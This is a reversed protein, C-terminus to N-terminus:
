GSYTIGIQCYRPLPNSSSCCANEVWWVKNKGDWPTNTGGGDYDTGAVLNNVQEETLDMGSPDGPYTGLDGLQESTGSLTDGIASYNFFSQNRNWNKRNTFIYDTYENSGYVDPNNNVCFYYTCNFSNTIGSLHGSISTSDLTVYYGCVSFDFDTEINSCINTYSLRMCYPNFHCLDGSISTCCAVLNRMGTFDLGSTDGSLDFNRAICLCSLGTAGSLFQTADESIGNEYIMFDTINNLNFDNLSACIPTSCASFRNLSSGVTLNNFSGTIGSINSVCLQTINCTDFTSSLNFTVGSNGSVDLSSITSPRVLDSLEGSLDNYCFYVQSANPPLTIGSLNGTFCSRSYYISTIGTPFTYTELSGGMTTYNMNVQSINDPFIMNNIDNTVGCVQYLGFNNLNTGSWDEPLCSAGVGYFCVQNLPSPLSWGSLDGTIQSYTYNYNQIFLMSLSTNESFDWNSIDGCLYSSITYFRTLGTNFTWSDMSGKVGNFPGYFCFCEFSSMDFTDACLSMLQTNWSTFCRMCTSNDVMDNLCYGLAPTNCIRASNFDNGLDGLNTATFQTYLLHLDCISGFNEVTMLDGTIGRDYLEFTELNRPLSTNSIDINFNQERSAMCYIKLNPFQNMHGIMDGSYCGNTNWTRFYTVCNLGDGCYYWDKYTSESTAPFDLQTLNLDTTNVCKILATPTAYYISLSNNESLGTATIYQYAIVSTNVCVYADVVQSKFVNDGNKLINDDNRLM